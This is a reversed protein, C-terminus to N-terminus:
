FYRRIEEVFTEPDIPKEIYGNIGSALIRQRDGVMAYSTVAIIPIGKMEEHLRLEVAVACGDMEPLQIDLLVAGPKQTLAMQIGDRGNRAGMVTFGSKELLYQMLYLNQENDEIVLLTESM